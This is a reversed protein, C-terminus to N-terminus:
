WGQAMARDFQTQTSSAINPFALCVADQWDFAEASEIEGGILGILDGDDPCGALRWEVMADKCKFISPRFRHVLELATQDGEIHTPDPVHDLAFEWRKFSEQWDIIGQAMQSLTCVEMAFRAQYYLALLTKADM